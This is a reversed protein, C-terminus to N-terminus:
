LRGAVQAGYSLGTFLANAYGRSKARKAMKRYNAERETLRAKRTLTTGNDAAIGYDAERFANQRAQNPTGFSLDVGSAAYATNIDGISDQLEAKLARRRDIGKLTELPQERAADDAALEYREAEANGANIQSTISLLTAAGQLLGSLSLGGGTAAAGGATAATGAAGAASGAAGAAAGGGTLAKFGSAVLGFALEM